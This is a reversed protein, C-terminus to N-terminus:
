GIVELEINFMSSIFEAQDKTFMNAVAPIADYELYLKHPEGAYLSLGVGQKTEINKLKYKSYNANKGFHQTWLRGHSELRYQGMGYFETMLCPKAAVVNLQKKHINQLEGDYNSLPEIKVASNSTIVFCDEVKDEYHMNSVYMGTFDGEFLVIDGTNLGDGNLPPIIYNYNHSPDGGLSPEEILTEEMTSGWDDIPEDAQLQEDFEQTEELEDVDIIDKNLM